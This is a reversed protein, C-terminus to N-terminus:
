RSIEGNNSNRNGKLTGGNSGSKRKLKKVESELDKLRKEMLKMTATMADIVSDKRNCAEYLLQIEYEKIKNM